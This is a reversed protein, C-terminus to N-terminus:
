IGSSYINHGALCYIKLRIIKPCLIGSAIVNLGLNYFLIKIKKISSRIRRM